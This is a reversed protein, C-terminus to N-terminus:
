QAERLIADDREFLIRGIALARLDYTTRPPLGLEARIRNERRVSCSSVAPEDPAPDACGRDPRGAIALPLVHGYLEHALIRDIDGELMARSAGAARAMREMVALDILVAAGILQGARNGLPLMRGIHQGAYSSLSPVLEGLQEPTGILVQFRLGALSDLAASWTPSRDQLSHVREALLRDTVRVSGIDEPVPLKGAGAPLVACAATGLLGLALARGALARIIRRGARRVAVEGGSSGVM